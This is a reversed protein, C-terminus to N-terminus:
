TQEELLPSLAELTSTAVIVTFGLGRLLRHYHQQIPDPVPDEPDKVEIFIVRAEDGYATLDPWGKPYSVGPFNKLVSWGRRTYARRIDNEIWAENAM